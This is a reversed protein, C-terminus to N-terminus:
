AARGAVRQRKRRSGTNRSVDLCASIFQEATLKGETGREIQRALEMSPDREGRMVRTITSPSRGIRQALAAPTDGTEKFYTEIVNM